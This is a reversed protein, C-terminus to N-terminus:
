KNRQARALGASAAAAIERNAPDNPLQKLEQTVSEFFNAAVLREDDDNWFDAKVLFWEGLLVFAWAGDLTGQNEGWLKDLREVAADASDRASTKDPESRASDMARRERQVWSPPEVARSAKPQSTCGASLVAVLCLRRVAAVGARRAVRQEITM